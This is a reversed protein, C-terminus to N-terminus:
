WRAASAPYCPRWNLCNSASSRGVSGRFDILKEGAGCGVYLLRGGRRFRPMALVAGFLGSLSRPM